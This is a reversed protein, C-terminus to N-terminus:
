IGEGILRQEIWPAIESFTITGSAIGQIFNYKTDEDALIHYGNLRLFVDM